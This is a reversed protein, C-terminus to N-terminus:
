NGENIEEAAEEKIETPPPPLTSRTIGNSGLPHTCSYRLMCPLFSPLFYLLDKNVAEKGCPSGPSGPGGPGGPGDPFSPRGPGGPFSPWGPSFPGGPSGPLGPGTPGGPTVPGLTSIFLM